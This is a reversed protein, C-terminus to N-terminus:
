VWLTQCRDTRLSLHVLGKPAHRHDAAHADWEAAGVREIGVLRVQLHQGRHQGPQDVLVAEFAHVDVLRDATRHDRVGLVPVQGALRHEAGLQRRGRGADSDLLRAPVLRCAADIIWALIAVPSISHPMAMPESVVESAGITKLSFNACRSTSACFALDIPCLSAAKLPKEGPSSAGCGGLTLSGRVPRDM